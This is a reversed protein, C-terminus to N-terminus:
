GEEVDRERQETNSSDYEDGYQDEPLGEEESGDMWGEPMSTKHYFRFLRTKKLFM